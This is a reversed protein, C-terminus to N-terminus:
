KGLRIGFILTAFAGAAAETPNFLGSYVGGLVTLAL